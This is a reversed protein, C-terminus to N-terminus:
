KVTKKEPMKQIYARVGNLHRWMALAAKKGDHQEVSDLIEQLEKLLEDRRQDLLLTKRRTEALVDLSLELWNLFVFNRSAEALKRHFEGDLLFLNPGEEYSTSKSRMKGLIAKLAEIHEPTAKEAALEATKCEITERAELLDLIQSRELSGIVGNMRFFSESQAAKVFRGGGQQSIILGEAELVRFAERLSAKSVGLSEIIERETPLRDGPQYEGSNIKERIQRVIDEYLRRYKVKTFGM